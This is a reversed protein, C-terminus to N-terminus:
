AALRRDFARLPTTLVLGAVVGGLFVLGVVTFLVTAAATGGRRETLHAASRAAAAILPFNLYGLVVLVGVAGAGVLLVTVVFRLLLGVIVGVLLVVAYEIFWSPVVM